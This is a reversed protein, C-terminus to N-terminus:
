EKSIEYAISRAFDGRKYLPKMTTTQNTGKIKKGGAAAQNGYLILTLPHRLEFSANSSSGGSTICEVIDQKAAEGVAKLAETIKNLPNASLGQLYYSGIEYWEKSKANFTAGFTPRAPMTLTAGAKVNYVGQSMLWKSQRESVSQTWGYELYQAVKSVPTGNEYAADAKVGVKVRLNDAQKCENIFRELNKLNLKVEASM